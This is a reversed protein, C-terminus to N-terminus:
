QHLNSRKGYDEFVRELIFIGKDLFAKSITIAPFLRLVKDQTCNLLLGRERAMTVIDAGPVTLEIGRMLALGRVEKIFPFRSKIVELREGFYKGLDRAKQLLGKQKITKLVAIAAACVLPNGGYTSGHSGPLFIEKKISRNALMAGIPVGNGLSKALTMIDPLIGYHQYAFFEGTRGMATQVEDLILLMDSEDCIKRLGKMFEQTAVHVGGEGQVPELMIAITKNTILKKVSELDNFEAYKFGEPLPNFGIQVKDQGTATLAALTRGHFSKKMTIIEYRGTDNGYKRVFKIAAENAEAGSNCFFTRAPFAAKSIEAALTAQKLNLFNNPIHIIKQSQEKIASVVDPHCHGLGSVAWGPFFDIYEKGHIDWVRSGKGKVLCLPVQTYTPLVFESYLLQVDQTNM